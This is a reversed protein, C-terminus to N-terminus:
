YLDEWQREIYVDKEYSDLLDLTSYNKSKEMLTKYTQDAVLSDDQELLVNTLNDM